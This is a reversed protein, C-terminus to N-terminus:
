THAKRSEHSTCLIIRTVHEVGLNAVMGMKNLRDLNCQKFTHKVHWKRCICTQHHYGCAPDVCCGPVGGYGDQDTSM